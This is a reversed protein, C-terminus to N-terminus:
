PKPYGRQPSEQNPFFRCRYNQQNKVQHSVIYEKQGKNMLWNKYFTFALQFLLRQGIVDLQKDCAKEIDKSLSAKSNKQQLNGISAKYHSHIRYEHMHPRTGTFVCM